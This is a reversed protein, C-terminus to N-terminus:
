QHIIILEATEGKSTCYYGMNERYFYLQYMTLWKERHNCLSIRYEMGWGWSKERYICKYGLRKGIPHLTIDGGQKRHICLSIGVKNGTITFTCIDGDKERHVFHCRWRTGQPYKFIDWRTGQSHMTIHIGWRQPHVCIYLQVMEKKLSTSM